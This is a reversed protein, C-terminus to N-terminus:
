EITDLINCSIISYKLNDTSLDAYYQSVKDVAQASDKAKIMRIEECIRSGAHELSSDYVRLVLKALFYKM